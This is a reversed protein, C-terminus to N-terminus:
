IIQNESINSIFFSPVQWTKGHTMNFDWTELANDDGGVAGGKLVGANNVLINIKGYKEMTQNVVNAIQDDKTVDAVVAIASGGDAEIQSVLANLAPLNRGTATIMAGEKAFLRATALGIGSSAGTIIAVKQSLKGVVSSM